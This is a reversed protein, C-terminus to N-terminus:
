TGLFQDYFQIAISYYILVYMCVYMYIYIHPNGDIPTGWYSSPKSPFIRDVFPHHSPPVGIEPFRWIYIYIMYIYIM